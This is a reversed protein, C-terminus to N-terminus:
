LLVEISIFCKPQRLIWFTNLLIRNIFYFYILLSFYQLFSLFFSLFYLLLLPLMSQFLKIKLLKITVMKREFLSRKRFENNM